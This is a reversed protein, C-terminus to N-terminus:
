EPCLESEAPCVKLPDWTVWCGTSNWNGRDRSHYGVGLSWEM